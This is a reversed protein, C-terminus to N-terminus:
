FLGKLSQIVANDESIGALKKKIVSKRVRFNNSTIGLIKTIESGPMKFYLLFLIMKESNTLPISKPISLHSYFLEDDVLGKLLEFFERKLHKLENNLDNYIDPNNKVLRQSLESFRKQTNNERKTILRYLDLLHKKQQNERMNSEMKQEASVRLLRENELELRSKRLDLLFILFVFIAVLFVGVGVFILRQYRQRQRLSDIQALSIDYKKELQLIQKETKREVSNMLLQFAEKYTQAALPYLKQKLAKSGLYAYLHHYDYKNLLSDNISNISKQAYYIVSDPLNMRDYALAIAYYINPMRPKRSVSSALREIERYFGIAKSNNGKVIYYAGQANLIDLQREPPIDKLSDLRNLVAGAEEFNRNRLYSWFIGLSASVISEVNNIQRANNLARSFYEEALKHNSNSQHLLGIYFWLYTLTHRSMLDPKMALIQEVDKFADFIISDPYQGTQFRVVSQYIVARLYNNNPIPAKFRQVAITITSDNSIAQNTNVGVITKLLYYYAKNKEDLSGADMQELSDKAASINKYILSDIAILQHRVSKNYTQCSFFILLPLFFLILGRM